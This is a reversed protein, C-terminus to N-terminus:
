PSAALGPIAENMELQDSVKKLNSRLERIEMEQKARAAKEKAMVSKMETIVVAQEEVKRYEKLFENLLMANVAEYRITSLKGDEDRVVLDPNVKEVDEAILGFQPIKDPDLDEKYRFTVPKLALITESAKDMPKIAEKFRASSQITGLQGNSNIIVGVGSPVTKGSIGAIFTKQQTGSKGIRITNAERALGLISAGIDINNSGTTLNGGAFSGLAVNNSGTTNSSLAADGVAINDSGTTNGVLAETGLATNSHGTTNFILASVGNATNDFGTTNSFLAEFGTATNNDGTTNRDLAAFGMASNNGGTTNSMLAVVGSATNDSGTTNNLLADFGTATNSLGITNKNLAQDGIATNFSASTNSFLAQFGTATNGNGDRNLVLADFGTATNQGGITNSGLAAAGVATNQSGSTLNLLANDGEATNGNPYGGDPPPNVAFATPMSHLAFCSLTLLLYNRCFSSTISIKSGTTQNICSISREMATNDSTQYKSKIVLTKGM